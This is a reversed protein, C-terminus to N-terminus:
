QPEWNGAILFPNFEKNYYRDVLYYRASAIELLNSRIKLISSNSFGQEPDPLAAASALSISVVLSFSWARM